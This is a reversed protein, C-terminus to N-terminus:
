WGNQLQELFDDLRGTRFSKLNTPLANIMFNPRGPFSDRSSNPVIIHGATATSAGGPGTDSSIKRTFSSNASSLGAREREVSPRPSPQM